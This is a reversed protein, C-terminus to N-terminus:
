SLNKIMNVHTLMETRCCYRHLGLKDLIGKFSVANKNAQRYEDFERYKNALITNCSNCRIAILM